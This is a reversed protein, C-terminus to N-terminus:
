RLPAQANLPTTGEGEGPSKTRTMAADSPIPLAGSNKDRRFRSISLSLSLSSLSHSKHAGRPQVSCVESPEAREDRHCLIEESLYDVYYCLVNESTIILQLQGKTNHLNLHHM